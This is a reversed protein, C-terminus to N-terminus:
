RGGAVRCPFAGRGGASPDTRRRLRRLRAPQTRYRELRRAREPDGAGRRRRIQDARRGVHPQGTHRVAPESRRPHDRREPSRRGGGPEYGPGRRRRALCVKGDENVDVSVTGNSIAGDGDWDVDPVNDGDTDQGSMPWGTTIALADRFQFMNEDDNPDLVMTEDLQTEDLPAPIAGRGGPCSPCLPPSYDLLGGGSVQPINLGYNYNMMSIYNPKNNLNEFGGHRLNLTHGLEHFIYGPDTGYVIFDNGGIEGIGAPRTGDACLNEASPIGSILYRFAVRRAPDFFQAKAAYFSNELCIVPNPLVDGGGGLDDGVLQGDEMLGGTDVWLNIGPQNDPNVTGGADKPALAFADKLAQIEAHKPQRGPRWDMEVFLDKHDARAGFAPLDIDPQGDGDTDIGNEEWVDYLGDGDSDALTVTFALCGFRVYRGGSKFDSRGQLGKATTVARLTVAYDHGAILDVDQFTAAPPIFPDSAVVTFITQFAAGDEKQDLILDSALDQGATLDRLTATIRVSGYNTNIGLSGVLLGSYSIGMTLTAAFSVGPTFAVGIDAHSSNQQAAGGDANSLASNTPLDFTADQGGSDGFSAACLPPDDPVVDEAAAAAVAAQSMIAALALRRLDGRWTRRRIRAASGIPSYSSRTKSSHM